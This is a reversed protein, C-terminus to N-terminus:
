HIAGSMNLFLNLGTLYSPLPAKPLTKSTRSEESLSNFAIFITLKIDISTMDDKNLLFIILHKSILNVSESKEMFSINNTLGISILLLM